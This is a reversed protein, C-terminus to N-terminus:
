MVPVTAHKPKPVVAANIFIPLLSPQLSVPGGLSYIQWEEAGRGSVRSQWGERADSIVKAAWAGGPGRRAADYNGRAHFYKDAGIYNAERMDRYARWMDRAGGAADRVFKIGSSFPNDASAYLVISLLVFCICLRM